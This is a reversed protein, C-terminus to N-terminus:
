QRYGRERHDIIVAHFGGELRLLRAVKGFRLPM